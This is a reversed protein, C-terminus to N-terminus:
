RFGVFWVMRRPSRLELQSSVSLPPVCGARWRQALFIPHRFGLRISASWSGSARIQVLQVEMVGTEIGRRRPKWMAREGAVMESLCRSKQFEKRMGPAGGGGVACGLLWAM